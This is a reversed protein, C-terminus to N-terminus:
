PLCLTANMSTVVHLFVVIGSCLIQVKYMAYMCVGKTSCAPEHLSLVHNLGIAINTSGIVPLDPDRWVIKSDKYQWSMKDLRLWEGM